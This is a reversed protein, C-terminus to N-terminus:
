ASTLYKQYQDCFDSVECYRKCRLRESLRKDVRATGKVVSPHKEAEEQAEQVAVEEQEEKSPIDIKTKVNPLGKEIEAM